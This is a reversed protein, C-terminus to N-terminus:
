RPPKALGHRYAYVVLDFRNALNLKGFISTLHHSVTAESISLLRAIDRNYLGEGVLAIVERERPTLKAIKALEPDPPIVGAVRQGSVESLVRAVMSPELWVEGANVREVAHILAQAAQEKLVVGMVGLRVARHYEEPARVGTVLIIRTNPAAAFLDPLMTLSSKGGLDLDLLVIDPQERAAIELAADCDSAEGVVMIHSYRELLMRLGTRVLEHDDVLLIRIPTSTTAPM